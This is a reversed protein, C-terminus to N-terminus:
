AIARGVDLLLGSIYEPPTFAIRQENLDGGPRGGGSLCPHRRGRPQIVPVTM